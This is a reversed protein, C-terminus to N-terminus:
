SITTEYGFSIANDSSGLVGDRTYFVKGEPDVTVRGTYPPLTYVTRPLPSSEKLFLSRVKDGEVWYLQRSFNFKIANPLQHSM